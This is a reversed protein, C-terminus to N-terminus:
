GAIDPVGNRGPLMSGSFEVDPPPATMGQRKSTLLLAPYKGCVRRTNIKLM